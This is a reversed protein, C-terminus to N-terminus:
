TFPRWAKPAVNRASGLFWSCRRLKPPPRPHTETKRRVPWLAASSAPTAAPARRGSAPSSPTGRARGRARGLGRRAEGGGRFAARGRGDGGCGRAHATSAERARKLDAADGSGGATVALGARTGGPGFAKQLAAFYHTAGMWLVLTELGRGTGGPNVFYIDQKLFKGSESHRGM